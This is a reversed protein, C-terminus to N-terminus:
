NHDFDPTLADGCDFNEEFAYYVHNEIIYKMDEMTPFREGKDTGCVHEGALWDRVALPDSDNLYGEFYPLDSFMFLDEDQRNYEFFTNDKFLVGPNSCNATNLEIIHGIFGLEGISNRCVKKILLLVSQSEYGNCYIWKGCVDMFLADLEEQSTVEEMELEQIRKKLQVIEEARTM